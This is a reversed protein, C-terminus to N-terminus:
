NIREVELILGKLGTVKVREGEEIPEKSCANWYEGRILVKGREHVPTVTTGEEGIMGERGTKPKRMQAKVALSVVAAFFLSVIVVTPIMVKLSVRLAPIPSEFLLLSGLALSIVGAVTLMGHSVIKIEAIFLIVGFIILLIGAFNVPLTQMAFFALILSIGGVVGPLIAGPHSFEFYLGALGIMLLLYAINPDSLATLIRARIGMEKENIVADKTKLTVSGSNIDIKRGEIQALLDQIDNAVIDIVNLRKAEDATISESKRVAKEAWEANRNRKQAIGQVYAVADNIVKEAMTEDMKGGVGMAVPHAAGINTGPAMAAVHAAMTIMVGASAARAGSPSVYVIIPIPANLLEKVIDRMALDLGGPTDLLIILGESRQDHSADISQIIYKAVAPTIASSVTIVDFVPSNTSGLARHGNVIVCVAIIMFIFLSQTARNKM